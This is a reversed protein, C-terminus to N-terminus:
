KQQDADPVWIMQFPSRRHQIAQWNRAMRSYPRKLGPKESRLPSKWKPLERKGLLAEAAWAGLFPNRVGHGSYGGLVVADASEPHRECITDMRRFHQNPWWRNTFSVSRLRPHLSRIRNKSVPSSKPPRAQKLM